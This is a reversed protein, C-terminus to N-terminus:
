DLQLLQRDESFCAPNAPQHTTAARYSLRRAGSAVRSALGPQVLKEPRHIGTTIRMVTLATAVSATCAKSHDREPVATVSSLKWGQDGFKDLASEYVAAYDVAVGAYSSQHIVTVEVGLNIVKHEFFKM